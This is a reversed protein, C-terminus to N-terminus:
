ELCNVPDSSLPHYYQDFHNRSFSMRKPLYVLALGCGYRSLYDDNDEKNIPFPRDDSVSGINNSLVISGITNKKNKRERERCEEDIENEDVDNNLVSKIKHISMGLVCITGSDMEEPDEENFSLVSVPQSSSSPVDIWLLTGGMPQLLPHGEGSLLSRGENKLEIKDGATSSLSLSSPSNPPSSTNNTRKTHSFLSLGVVIVANESRVLALDCPFAYVMRMPDFKKGPMSKRHINTSEEELLEVGDPDNEYLREALERPDPLVGVTKKRRSLGFNAGAVAVKAYRGPLCNINWKVSWDDDMRVSNDDDIDITSERHLEFFYVDGNDPSVALGRPYQLGNLLVHVRETTRDIFCLRGDFMWEDGSELWYVRNGVVELQRPKTLGKLLTRRVRKELDLVGLTGSKENVWYLMGGSCVSGSASDNEDYEDPDAPAYSVDTYNCTGIFYSTDYANAVCNTQRMMKRNTKSEEGKEEGVPSEFSFSEESYDRDESLILGEAALMMLDSLVARKENQVTVEEVNILKKKSRLPSVGSSVTSYLPAIEPSLRSNIVVSDHFPRAEPTIPTILPKEEM